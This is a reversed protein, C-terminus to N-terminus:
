NKMLFEGCAFTSVAASSDAMGKSAYRCPPFAFLRASAERRTGSALCAAPIMVLTQAFCADVRPPSVLIGPM